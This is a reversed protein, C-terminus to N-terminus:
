FPPEDQPEGGLASTSWGTGTPVAAGIASVLEDAAPSALSRESDNAAQQGAAGLAQRNEQGDPQEAPQAAAPPHVTVSALSLDPGIHEAEVEVSTGRGRESEWNRVRLRGSVLVLHGKDISDRVHEALRRRSIVTLWSTAGDEWSNTQRNFRREVTALRFSTELVGWPTSRAEPAGGVRGIVTIHNSM